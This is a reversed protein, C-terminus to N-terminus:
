EDSWELEPIFEVNAKNDKWVEVYYDDQYLGVVLKDAKPFKKKGAALVAAKIRDSEKQARSKERKVERAVELHDEATKKEKEPPLEAGEVRIMTGGRGKGLVILGENKLDQKANTFHIDSLGTKIKAQKGTLKGEAPIANFLKRANDNLYTDSM